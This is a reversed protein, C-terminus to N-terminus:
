LYLYVELIVKLLHDQEAKLIVPLVQHARHLLGQFILPSHVPQLFRSLLVIQLHDLLHLLLELHDLFHILYVQVGLYV